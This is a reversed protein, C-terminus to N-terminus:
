RKNDYFCHMGYMNKYLFVFHNNNRIIIVMEKYKMCLFLHREFAYFSAAKM